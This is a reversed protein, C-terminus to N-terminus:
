YIQEFHAWSYAWPIPRLTLSVAPGEDGMGARRDAMDQKATQNTLECLM